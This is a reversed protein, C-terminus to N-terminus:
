ESAPHIRRPPAIVQRVGPRSRDVPRTGVPAPAQALATLVTRAAPSLVADANWCVAVVREHPGNLERVKVGSLDSIQAALANTLGIGLGARVMSVLSQPQNTAQVPNLEYGEDRFLQYAEFSPPVDSELRGISILDRHAIDAVDLPKDEAALLDGEPIVAVLRERWLPRTRIAGQTPRPTVPRLCLDIEGRLLASDLELTDTEVLSVTIDPESEALDRLVQPMFAASASPYAGFNVVGRAGGRFSSMEAEALEVERLISRAHRLLAAGAPTVESPRKRRDLVPVGVARELSAVHMSVRPQSRHTAEAASSFGGTEVVALFSVLWELRVDTNLM